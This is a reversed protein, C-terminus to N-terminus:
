KVNDGSIISSYKTKRKIFYKEYYKYSLGALLIVICIAIIYLMLINKYNILQCIKIALIIAVPHFMYLGYSIKGLYRFLKNELSFIPNPNIAFNFVIYGSLIAYIESNLYTFFVGYFLLIATVTLVCLQTWWTFLLQKMKQTYGNNVYHLWAYIGGIAMCSIPYRSWIIFAVKSFNNEGPYYKLTYFVGLYIVLVGIFIFVKNKIKKFLVPWVFYFQEEAGITWSHTAYPIFGLFDMVMNPMFICYFFLKLPLKTWIVAVEYDKFALINIFPYVFLALAITLFYLPWIRLARRIYFAKINITKNAKNEVLLLYTILFGSLAFFLIVGFEAKVPFVFWTKFQDRVGYINILQDVHSLLVILAAICRLSNLNKFYIKQQM